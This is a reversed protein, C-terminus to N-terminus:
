QLERKYNAEVDARMREVTALSRKMAEAFPSAARDDLAQELRRTAAGVADLHALTALRPTTGITNQLAVVAAEAEEIGPPQENVRLAALQAQLEELSGGGALEGALECLAAISVVDRVHKRNAVVHGADDLVIWTAPGDGASFACLYAREGTAPETPVIATLEEGTDACRAASEAIRRLDESLGM